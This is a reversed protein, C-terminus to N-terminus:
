VFCGSKVVTKELCIFDLPTRRSTNKHVAVKLFASNVTRSSADYVWSANLTFSCRATMPGDAVRVPRHRGSISKRLISVPFTGREFGSIVIKVGNPFFCM